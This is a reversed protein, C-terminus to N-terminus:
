SNLKKGNDPRFKVMKLARFQRTLVCNKVFCVITQKKPKLMEWTMNKIHYKEFRM